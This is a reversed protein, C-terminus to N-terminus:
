ARAIQRNFLNFYRRYRAYYNREEKVGFRGIVKEM